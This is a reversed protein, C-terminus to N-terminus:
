TTTLLNMREPGWAVFADIGARQTHM